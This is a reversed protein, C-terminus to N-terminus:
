VSPFAKEYLIKIIERNNSNVALALPLNGQKTKVSVDAGNELLCNVINLYPQQAALHLPTIGNNDAINVNAGYEVLSLIMDNRELSVALLLPTAGDNSQHNIDLKYNALVEKLRVNNDSFVIAHLIGEGENNLLNPDSGKELFYKYADSLGDSIAYLLLTDNDEDEFRDDIYYKTKNSELFFIDNKCIANKLKETFSM